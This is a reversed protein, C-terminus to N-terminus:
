TFIDTMLQLLDLGLYLKAVVNFVGLGSLGVLMWLVKASFYLPALRGQASASYGKFYRYRGYLYLLGLGSSVAQSFFAGSVWLVVIFIPFYESCNAQARFVREFEPPGATAPPSVSYKRRAYIVQLSFYAQELVGLVTVAAVCVVEELM